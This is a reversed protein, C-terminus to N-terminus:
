LVHDFLIAVGGAVVVPREGRAGVDDCAFVGVAVAEIGGEGERVEGAEGVAFVEALERRVGFSQLMPDGLPLGRFDDRDAAADEVAGVGVALPADERRRGGELEEAQPCAARRGCVFRGGRMAGPGAM